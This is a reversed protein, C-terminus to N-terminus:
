KTYIVMQSALLVSHGSYLRIIYSGEPLGSPKWRVPSQGPSISITDVVKGSIDSIKLYALEDITYKVTFFDNSPNPFVDLISKGTSPGEGTGVQTDFVAVTYEGMQLNPVILNGITWNGIQEFYISHWDQSADKRYLIVVSDQSDTILTNDLYGNRTYFFKGSGEFTQPIIGDIRWYRYDSITLGTVPVRLSDPPVWNHTVQIFASDIIDQVDLTFYTKVFQHEGTTKIINYNDTTADMMKEEPDVFVASPIFPLLLTSNGAPGSFHVKDTFRNWQNDMFMLEIINDNGAFNYGKRRQKMFVTVQFQNGVPMVNFSDVSYHPTGPNFVWNDFFGTMDIGTYSTMFDRMDYSSASNYAFADIYASLARFFLSDGLYFRLAQVVTAGKNYATMGYTHTQPINNLPFYSGDGNPTHCYQLMNAHEARMLEKFSGDNYLPITYYFGFFEAWGENLWMEEASSCTVEDGLWMHSLEHAFLSENATNGSITSHPIFINTVHEMAGLATGTYGVREWPYPGMCNEFIQLIDKLHIFTGPVKSADQPRVYIAIPVAANMGQFTDNLAVYQGTALSVLYTPMSHDTHWHFTKTGNGNNIEEILLGGGVATEDETVTAYVNYIARDTFNDICPFWSKGLNHPIVSLGVGLNFAYSGNFHFGGWAEHFPIGGYYIRITVTDGSSLPEPLPTIVLSDTQIFDTIKLDDVFVSDVTLNILDLPATTVDQFSTTLSVDTYGAIYTATTNVEEIHIGYRVADLSDISRGEVPHMKQGTLQM